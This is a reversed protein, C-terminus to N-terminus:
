GSDENAALLDMRQFLVSLCRRDNSGVEVEAPVECGEAVRFVIDNQGKLLTFSPTAFEQWGVVEFGAVAQGNATVQM